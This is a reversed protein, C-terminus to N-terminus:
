FLGFGKRFMRIWSKSDSNQIKNQMYQLRKDAQAQTIVGKSVLTQLQTKYQQIQYDKINKNVQDQSINKEKMIQQM